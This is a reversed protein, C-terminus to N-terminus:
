AVLQARSPRTADAQSQGGRGARLRSFHSALFGLLVGVASAALVTLHPERGRIVISGVLASSAAEVLVWACSALLVLLAPVAGLRWALYSGIAAAISIALAAGLQTGIALRQGQVLVLGLLWTGALLAVNVGLLRVWARLSSNM